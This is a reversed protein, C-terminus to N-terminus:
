VHNTDNICEIKLVWYQRFRAGETLAINVPNIKFIRHFYQTINTQIIFAYSCLESAM